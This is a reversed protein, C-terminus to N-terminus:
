LKQAEADIYMEEQKRLWQKFKRWKGQVLCANYLASEDTLDGKYPIKEQSLFNIMIKKVMGDMVSSQVASYVLPSRETYTKVANFANEQSM